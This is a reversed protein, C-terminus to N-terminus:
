TQFPLGVSRANFHIVTNHPDTLVGTHVHPSSDEYM